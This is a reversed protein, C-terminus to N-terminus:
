FLRRALSPREVAHWTLAALSVVAILLLALGGLPSAKFVGLQVLAQILPFHWMYIGYSLDGCRTVSGLYVLNHAAWSVLAALGIPYLFVGPSPVHQPWQSALWLVAAGIAGLKWGMQQLRARECYCWAGPLFFMLQGPMQKAVEVFGAKNLKYALAMFGGWWLCSAVFGLGLVLHHGWRRCMWVIAPVVAYFMLEVKITWLAGNVPAGPFPNSTFVGPLGPHLFNLFSLNAALYQLWSKGFYEAPPLTSLLAGFLACVLVVFVYAPVIRRVRKSAYDRLLPTNDCSMYVLYGSIIFFTSLSIKTELWGLFALAPEASLDVVHLAMVGSAALLRLLDFNNRRSRTSM